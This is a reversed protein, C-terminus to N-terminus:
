RVRLTKSATAGKNGMADVPAFKVTYTGRKLAKTRLVFSRTGAPAQVVTAAASSKAGKRVVAISVTAPESLWFRLQAGATVRSVSARQLSPAATDKAAHGPRPTSLHDDVTASPTVAFTATATATASVTPSATATATATPTPTEVEEGEVTITGSMSPHLECVFKYVGAKGFTWSQEGEGIYPNKTYADWASDPPTSANQPAAEANHSSGAGDFNWTVTDGTQITVDVPGGAGCTSANQTQTFCPTATKDFVYIRTDQAAGAVSVAAIGAAIALTTTAALIGRRRKRFGTNM